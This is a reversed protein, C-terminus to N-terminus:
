SKATLRGFIAPMTSPTPTKKANTRYPRLMRPQHAQRATKRALPRPTPRRPKSPVWHFVLNGKKAGSVERSAGRSAPRGPASPPKWGFSTAPASSHTIGTRRTNLLRTAVRGLSQSAAKPRLRPIRVIIERATAVTM